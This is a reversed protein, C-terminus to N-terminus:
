IVTKLLPYYLDKKLPYKLEGKKDRNTFIVPADEIICLPTKEAAEGMLFSAAASLPDAADVLTTKLKRGFIDPKGIYNKVGKFGSYGVAAGTVGARLPLIFSDTIIIGLNKIKYFKKLAIRLRRATKYSDRPLLIIKGDANSRDVGANTMVAGDKITLYCYHTKLAFSSEKKIIKEFEKESCPPLVRGEALAAIKSSVVIVSGDKLAPIHETIFASLSENEKFVKTKITKLKM